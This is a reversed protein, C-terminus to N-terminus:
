SILHEVNPVIINRIDYFNNVFNGFLDSLIDFRVSLGPVNLSYTQCNIVYDFFTTYYYKVIVLYNIYIGIPM